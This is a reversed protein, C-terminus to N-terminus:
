RVFVMYIWFAVLVAVLGQLVKCSIVHYLFLMILISFIIAMISAFALVQWRSWGRKQLYIAFHHPSGNYFPMGHYSRIIFLGLGELLPVALIIGPIFFNELLPRLYYDVFPIAQDGHTFLFGTFLSKDWHFLMPVAALFGGIFLTGADGLYIKAQPKNYVLFGAVAGIFAALLVSTTYKGAV